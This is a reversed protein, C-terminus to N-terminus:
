GATLGHRHPRRWDAPLPLLRRQARTIVGYCDCSARELGARDLITVFGRHYSVLRLQQLHGAATTVTARRVGLIHAMFEHTIPFTDTVARDHNLLLWRALRPELEHLRNCAASQAIETLRFQTYADVIRRLETSAELWGRFDGAELSFSEGPIQCVARINDCRDAGLAVSVEVMGENGVTAIEVALEDGTVTLLSLLGSAPFYVRRLREGADYIVEGLRHKIRRLRPCVKELQGAPVSALLLNSRLELPLIGPAM